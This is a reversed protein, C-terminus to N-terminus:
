SSDAFLEASSLSFMKCEPHEPGVEGVEWEHLPLLHTLFVPELVEMLVAKPM